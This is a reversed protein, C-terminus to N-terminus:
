AAAASGGLCPESARWRGVGRRGLPKVGVTGPVTALLAAAAGVVRWVALKTPGSV